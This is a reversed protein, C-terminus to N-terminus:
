RKGRMDPAPAAWRSAAYFDFRSDSRLLVIRDSDLGPGAEPRQVLVSGRPARRRPRPAHRCACCM